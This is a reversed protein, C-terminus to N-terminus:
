AARFRAATVPDAALAERLMTRAPDTDALAVVREFWRCRNRLRAQFLLDLAVAAPSRGGCCACGAQHPMVPAFGQVAVAGEPLGEPAPGARLVAAPPGKALAAALGAEDEVLQLGIRADLSWAM